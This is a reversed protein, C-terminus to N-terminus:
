HYYKYNKLDSVFDNINNDLNRNKQLTSVNIFLQGLCRDTYAKYSKLLNLYWIKFLSTSWDYLKKRITNILLSNM